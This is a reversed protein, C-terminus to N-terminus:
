GPGANVPGLGMTVFPGEEERPWDNGATVEEERLDGSGEEGAGGGGPACLPSRPAAEDEERPPALM